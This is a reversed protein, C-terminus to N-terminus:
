YLMMLLVYTSVALLWGSIAVKIAKGYFPGLNADTDNMFFNATM